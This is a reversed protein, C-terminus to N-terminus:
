RVEWSARELAAVSPFNERIIRCLVRAKEMLVPSDAFFPDGGSEVLKEFVRARDETPFSKSYADVFYVDAPDDEFYYTNTVDNMEYGNEDHYSYYYADHGGPTLTIWEGFIDIDIQDIRREMIHLLEHALVRPYEGNLYEVNVGIVMASGRTNSLAEATTIGNPTLPTFKGCIYIELHTFDGYCLDDFFGEPYTSLADELQLIHSYLVQLDTVAAADYDSAVLHVLDPQYYVKVGWKENIRQTIAALELEMRDFSVQEVEMPEADHAYSWRCLEVETLFGNEDYNGVLFCLVGEELFVFHYYTREWDVPLAPYYLGKEYDLVRYDSGVYGIGDDDEEGYVEVLLQTGSGAVVWAFADEGGIRYFQEPDAPDLIRNPYTDTFLCNGGWHFGEAMPLRIIEGEYDIAYVSESVGDWASYYLVNDRHGMIYGGGDVSLEFTDTAEGSLPVKTVAPTEWSYAWLTGDGAPDLYFGVSTSQSVFTYQKKGNPAYVEAVCALQDYVCVNGNELFVAIRNADSLEVPDSLEGTLLNLVQASARVFAGGEADSLAYSLLLQEGHISLSMIEGLGCDLDALLEVDAHEKWAPYTVPEIPITSEPPTPEPADTSPPKPESTQEASQTTAATNGSLDSWVPRTVSPAGTCASLLVVTLLGACISRFLKSM